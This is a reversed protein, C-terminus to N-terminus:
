DRVVRFRFLSKGNDQRSPLSSQARQAHTISQAAQAAIVPTVKVQKLRNAGVYAVRQVPTAKKLPELLSGGM